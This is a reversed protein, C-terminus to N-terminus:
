EEEVGSPPNQQYIGDELDGLFDPFLHKVEQWKQIWKGNLKPPEFENLKHPEFLNRSM